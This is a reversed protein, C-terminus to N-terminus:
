GNLSNRKGTIEVRGVSSRRSKLATIASHLRKHVAQLKFRIHRIAVASGIGVPYSLTYVVLDSIGDLRNGDSIALSRRFAGVGAMEDAM